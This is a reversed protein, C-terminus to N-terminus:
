SADLGLMMRFEDTTNVHPFPTDPVPMGLAHCIPEWGDGPQWDVLRENPVTARVSANHAEYARKADDEDSWNPTFTKTLMARPMQVFEALEPESPAERRSIEFITENASKWWADASSRTSLLVIADPNADALERWFAAAPWDVAAVYGDMVVQWDVPEGDIARQWNRAFEPHAMVELMHYCPGGLLQELAVKLSHTGTRGLGAGVVRLTM